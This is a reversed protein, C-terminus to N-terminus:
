KDEQDIKQIAIHVWELAAHCEYKGFSITLDWYPHVDESTNKWGEQLSEYSALTRECEAKFKQLLALVQEKSQQEAFFLRMLFPNRVSFTQEIDKEPQNLWNNLEQKGSKTISYIKKNPKEKQIVWDSTLWGKKEMDNLERYIQSTQATWFNFLSRKFVQNLEYGTMPSDKLLGLVGHKLSM